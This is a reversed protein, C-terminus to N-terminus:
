EVYNHRTRHQHRPTERVTQSVQQQQQETPTDRQKMKGGSVTRWRLVIQEGAGNHWGGDRDRRHRDSCPSGAASVWWVKRARQIGGRRVPAWPMERQLMPFFSPAVFSGQKSCVCAEARSSM